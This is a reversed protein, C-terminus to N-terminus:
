KQLPCNGYVELRFQHSSKSKRDHAQFLGLQRVMFLNSNGALSFTANPFQKITPEVPNSTCENDGKSYDSQSESESSAILKGNLDFMRGTPSWRFFSRPKSPMPTAIRAIIGRSNKDYVYNLLCEDHNFSILCQKCMACVVKSYVNKSDLKFNNCASSMHKNNKLLLLDRHHEEVEVEKNNSQSNKSASPVMDNKTNSRPQPRRTETNDVGISSLGNSNSNVDKKTIVPPQSITIPKIRASARVPNPVHKEERSTKVPNIRFMGLSIVKDNKVFKAEQPTSVSNSTVVGRCNYCRIQNGNQGAANEDARAEVLNGNGNQNGNRAAVLNGNRNLNQNGVNQVDNYGNLNGINMGPQAIKRNRPNSSIRQKNNTPTSYNLKFAKAMLSLAMNIATTPDTIDEPNPMPQQMYNQNFSPQDQHPATFAYPNNSNAM